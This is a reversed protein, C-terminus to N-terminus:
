IFLWINEKNTDVNKFFLSPSLSTIKKFDKIMHSQDFFMSEYTLDTLKKIDRRKSVAMRFRYIKRYESPSKGINKVFMSNLYQRSFNYKLAIQSITLDSELDAIVAELLDTNKQSFKEIWYKELTSIQLERDKMAFIGKMTPYFDPYPNFHLGYTQKVLSHANTIFHNIGTPKFYFTIEPVLDKYLVKFPSNYYTVFDATVVDHDARSVLIENKNM